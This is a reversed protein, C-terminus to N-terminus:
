SNNKVTNMGISGVSMRTRLQYELNKITSELQRTTMIQEKLKYEADERLKGIEDVAKDKERELKRALAAKEDKFGDEMDQMKRRLRELDDSRQRNGRELETVNSSLQDVEKHLTNQANEMEDRKRRLYSVEDELEKNSRKLERIKKASEQYEEIKENFEEVENVLERNNKELVEKQRKLKKITDADDDEADDTETITKRSKTLMKNMEYLLNKNEVELAERRKIEDLLRARMDCGDFTETDVQVATM